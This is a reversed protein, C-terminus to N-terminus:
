PMNFGPTERLAVTSTLTPPLSVHVVKKKNPHVDQARHGAEEEEGGKLNEAVPHFLEDAGLSVQVLTVVHGLDRATLHLSRTPTIALLLTVRLSPPLRGRALLELSPTQRRSPTRPFVFFNVM